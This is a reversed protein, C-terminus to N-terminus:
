LQRLLPHGHRHRGRCPAHVSPVGRGGPVTPGAEAKRDAGPEAKEYHKYLRGYLRHCWLGRGDWPGRLGPLAHSPDGPGGPRLVNARLPAGFSSHRFHVNHGGNHAHGTQEQAMQPRDGSHDPRIEAQASATDALLGAGGDSRLGWPGNDAAM